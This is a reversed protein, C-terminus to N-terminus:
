RDALIKELHRAVGDEHNGFDTREAVKALVDPFANAMAIGRGAWRLMTLDNLHDGFAVVEEAGIAARGCYDRLMAAKHVEPATVELFIASSSSVRAPVRGKLRRVIEVPALGAHALLGRVIPGYGALRQDIPVTRDSPLPTVAPSAALEDLEAGPRTGLAHFGEDPVIGRETEWAWCAGPLIDDVRAQLEVVRRPTLRRRRVVTGTSRQYLVAGNSCIV